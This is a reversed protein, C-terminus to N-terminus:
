EPLPGYIFDPWMPIGVSKKISMNHYFWDGDWEYLEWSDDPNYKVLYVKECILESSHKILNLEMNESM